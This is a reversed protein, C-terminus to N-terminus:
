NGDKAYIERLAPVDDGHKAGLMREFLPSRKLSAIMDPKDSVPHYILNLSSFVEWPKRKDGHIQMSKFTRDDERWGVPRKEFYIMWAMFEEYPM